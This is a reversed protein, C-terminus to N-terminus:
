SMKRLQHKGSAILGRTLRNAFGAQGFAARGYECRVTLHVRAIAAGLANSAVQSDTRRDPGRLYIRKKPYLM